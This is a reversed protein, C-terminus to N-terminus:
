RKGAREKEGDLPLKKNKKATEAVDDKKKGEVSKIQQEFVYWDIIKRMIKRTGNLDHDFQPLRVVKINKFGREALIGKIMEENHAQDYGLAIIDPKIDNIIDFMDGESGLVAKDVCRLAGVMEVRMEEPTIPEHKQAKVRKDTAVVVILEDGLKKAEELYHIHGLHLLDFVGSALVRTNKGKGQAAGGGSPKSSNDKQNNKM